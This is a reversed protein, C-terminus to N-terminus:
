FRPSRIVLFTAVAGVLFSAGCSFYLKLSDSSQGSISSSNRSQDDSILAKTKPMVAVGEDGKRCEPLSAAVEVSYPFSANDSLPLKRPKPVDSETPQWPQPGNPENDAATGNSIGNATPANSTSSGNPLRVDIMPSANASSNNANKNLDDTVDAGQKFGPMGFADVEKMPASIHREETIQRPSGEIQVTRFTEPANIWPDEVDDVNFSASALDEGKYDKRSEVRPPSSEPTNLAPDNILKELISGGIMTPTGAQGRLQENVLVQRQLAKETKYFKESIVHLDDEKQKLLAESATINERLTPLEAVDRSLKRLQEETKENNQRLEGIIKEMSENSRKLEDIQHCKIVMGDFQEQLDHQKRKLQQMEETSTTLKAMLARNEEELTIRAAKLKELLAREEELESPSLKLEQRLSEVETSDVVASKVLAEQQLVTHNKLEELEKQSLLLKNTLDVTEQQLTEKVNTVFELEALANKLQGVESQLSEKESIATKKEKEMERVLVTKAQVDKKASDLDSELTVVKQRITDLNAADMKLLAYKEASQQRLDMLQQELETARSKEVELASIVASQSELEAALKREHQEHAAIAVKLDHVELKASRLDDNARQNDAVAQQLEGVAKEWEEKYGPATTVKHDEFQLSSQCTDTSVIVVPPPNDSMSRDDSAVVPTINVSHAEPFAVPPLNALHDGAGAGASAMPPIPSRKSKKKKPVPSSGQKAVPPKGDAFSIASGSSSPETLSIGTSRKIDQEVVLPTPSPSPQPPSSVASDNKEVVAASEVSPLSEAPTPSPSDGEVSEVSKSKGKRNIRRRQSNTLNSRRPGDGNDVSDSRSLDDTSGMTSSDDKDDPKPNLEKSIRAPLSAAKAAKSAPVPIFGVSSSVNSNVPEQRNRHKGM